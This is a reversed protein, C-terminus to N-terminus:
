GDARRPSSPSTRKWFEPASHSAAASAVRNMDVQCRQKDPGAFTGLEDVITRIRAVGDLCDTLAADDANSQLRENEQALALLNVELYALPNNIEHAVGAAIQGLGVLRQNREALKRQEELEFRQTVDQFVGVFAITNGQADVEPRGASSVFRISGDPRVVRAEYDYSQGTEISKKILANVWSRDSPHYAKIAEDVSPIGLAPDRGHIRFVEPSWTLTGETDLRWHGVGALEEALMLQRLREEAIATIRALEDTADVTVGAKIPGRLM